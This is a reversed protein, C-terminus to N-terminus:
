DIARDARVLLDRPIALGLAVATRKNITLYFRTPAEFPVDGPSAGKLAKDISTAAHRANDNMDAGYSILAGAEAYESISQQQAVFSDPLISTERVEIEM